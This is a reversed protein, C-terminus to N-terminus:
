CRSSARRNRRAARRAPFSGRVNTPLRIDAESQRVAAEGDSLTFGDALNYSVTTSLEGDEHSISAATPNESFRAIASLPVMTTPATSLVNGSSSDRLGPNASITPTSGHQQRDDRHDIHRVRGTTGTTASSSTTSTTAPAPLARAAAVPM